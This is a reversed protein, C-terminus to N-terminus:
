VRKTVIPNTTTASRFECCSLVDSLEEDFYMMKFNSGVFCHGYETILAWEGALTMGTYITPVYKFYRQRLGTGSMYTKYLVSGCAANVVQVSLTNRTGRNVRGLALIGLLREAVEVQVERLLDLRTNARYLEGVDDLTCADILPLVKRNPTLLFDISQVTCIM